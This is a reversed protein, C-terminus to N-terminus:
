RKVGLRKNLKAYIKDFQSLDVAEIDHENSNTPLNGMRILDEVFWQPINFLKITKENIHRLHNTM